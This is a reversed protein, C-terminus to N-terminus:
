SQGCEQSSTDVMRAEVPDGWDNVTDNVCEWHEGVPVAKCNYTGLCVFPEVESWGQYYGPEDPKAEVWNYKPGGPYIDGTAPCGNPGEPNAASCPPDKPPCYAWCDDWCNYGGRVLDRFELGLPSWGLDNWAAIACCFGFVGVFTLLRSVLERKRM